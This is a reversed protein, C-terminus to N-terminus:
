SANNSYGHVLFSHFSSIVFCIDICFKRDKSKPSWSLLKIDNHFFYKFYNKKENGENKYPVYLNKGTSKHLEKITINSIINTRDM